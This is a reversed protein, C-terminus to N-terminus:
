TFVGLWGSRKYVNYQTFICIGICVVCILVIGPMTAKTTDKQDSMILCQFMKIDQLPLRM